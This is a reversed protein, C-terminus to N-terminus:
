PSWITVFDRDFRANVRDPFKLMVDFMRGVSGRMRKNTQDFFKSYNAQNYIDNEFTILYVDEITRLYCWQFISEIGVVLAQPLLGSQHLDEFFVSQSPTTNILFIMLRQAAYQVV